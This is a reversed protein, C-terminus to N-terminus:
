LRTSPPAYKLHGRPRSARGAGAVADPLARRGDERGSDGGGAAVDSGRSDSGEGVDDGAQVASRDIEVAPGSGLLYQYQDPNRCVGLCLSSCLCLYPWLDARSVKIEVASTGNAVSVDIASHSFSLVALRQGEQNLTVGLSKMEAHLRLLYTPQGQAAKFVHALARFRSQSPCQCREGQASRRRSIRREWPVTREFEGLLLPVEL